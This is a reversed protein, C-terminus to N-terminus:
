RLRGARRQREMSILTGLACVPIALISVYGPLPTHGFGGHLSILRAHAAFHGLVAFAYIPVSWRRLSLYAWAGCLSALGTILNPIATAADARGGRGLFGALALALAPLGTVLAFAAGLKIVATRKREPVANDTHTM